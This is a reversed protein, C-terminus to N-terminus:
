GPTGWMVGQTLRSDQRVLSLAHEAGPGANRCCQVAVKFETVTDRCRRLFPGLLARVQDEQRSCCAAHLRASLDSLSMAGYCGATGKMTHAVQALQTLEPPEDDGPLEQLVNTVHEIFTELLDGAADAGIEPVLEAVIDPYEYPVDKPSSETPMRTTMALPLSVAQHFCVTPGQDCNRSEKSFFQGLLLLGECVPQTIWRPLAGTLWARSREWRCALPGVPKVGGWTSCTLVLAITQWQYAFV